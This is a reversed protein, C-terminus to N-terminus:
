SRYPCTAHDCRRLGSVHVETKGLSFFVHFPPDKVLCGLFSNTIEPELISTWYDHGIITSFAGRQLLCPENGKCDVEDNEM